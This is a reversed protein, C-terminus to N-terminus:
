ARLRRSNGLVSISSLVMVGAALIPSIVGTAAFSIGLVNYAFSWFLKQSIISHTRKALQLVEIIGGLSRKLLVLPAAQMAIDAGSGLAIGLKAQALSSAANIGAGIMGVVLGKKQLGRIIEVKQAPLAEGIWEDAGIELAVRRTVETSDGSFLITRIRNERLSRCLEAAEPRVRDGLTLAGQVAGDWGFYVVTDSTALQQVPAMSRNGIFYTAEGVVGTIRRGAEVQADRAELERDQVAQVVARAIPHESCAEVAALEAMRSADGTVDLLTFQGETVTGTKDLVVVDVGRITELVQADSVLIGRRSAAAVASTVALPTAIGLACPCAIVIVALAHKLAEAPRGTRWQWGGFTLLAVAAVAPIFKRSVRDVTREIQTRSAAAQEVARVDCRPKIFVLNSVASLVASGFLGVSSLWTLVSRRSEM